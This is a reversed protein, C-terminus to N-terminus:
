RLPWTAWCSPRSKSRDTLAVATAELLGQARGTDGLFLYCSGAMRGFQTVSYLEIAADLEGVRRIQYRRYRPVM